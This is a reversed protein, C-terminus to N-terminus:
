WSVCKMIFEEEPNCQTPAHIETSRVPFQTRASAKQAAEFHGVARAFFADERSSHPEQLVLEFYLAGLRELLGRFTCCMM